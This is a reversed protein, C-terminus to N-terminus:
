YNRNRCIVILNEYTVCSCFTLSILIRSSGWHQRHWYSQKLFQQQWGTLEARNVLLDTENPLLTFQEM